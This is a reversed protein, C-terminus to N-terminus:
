TTSAPSMSAIKARWCPRMAKSCCRNRRLTNRRAPSAKGLLSAARFRQWNDPQIKKNTELAERALPETQAFKAQSIYALALDAASGMTDPNQKSLARRRGALVQAAYIEAQTFNGQRQGRRRPTSAKKTM